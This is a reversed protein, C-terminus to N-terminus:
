RVVVVVKRQEVVRGDVGDVRVAYVGMALPVTIRRKGELAIRAVQRGRLDFIKLTSNPKGELQVVCIGRQIQIFNVSPAKSEQVFATANVPVGLIRGIAGYANIKGAGWQNNPTAITGTYQDTIATEQLIQRVQEPTLTPSAELMLAVIGAAVPASMSTGAFAGYRHLTNTTDPWVVLKTSWGAVRSMAAVVQSGPAVIDPKIRGDITPGQGSFSMFKYLMTDPAYWGIQGSPNYVRYKSCYAGVAIIRKATGGIENISYENNGDVFGPVGFSKFSRKTSNWAHVTTATAATSTITFGLVYQGNKSECYVQAHPKNNLFSSREVALQTIITDTKGTTPNARVVVDAPYTGTNRM